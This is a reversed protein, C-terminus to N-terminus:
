EEINWARLYEYATSLGREGAKSMLQIAEDKRGLGKYTIAEWFIINTPIKGYFKNKIRDIVLKSETFKKSNCLLSLYDGYFDNYYVSISQYGVGENENVQFLSENKFHSNKSIKKDVISFTNLSGYKDGLKNLFLAKSYLVRNKHIEISRNLYENNNLYLINRQFDDLINLVKSIMQLLEFNTYLSEFKNNYESRFVVLRSLLLVDFKCSNNNFYEFQQEIENDIKEIPFSITIPEVFHVTASHHELLQYQVYGESEFFVYEVFRPEGDSVDFVTSDCVAFVKIFGNQSIINEKVYISTYNINLKYIINNEEIKPTSRLNLNKVNLYMKHGISPECFSNQAKCTFITLLFISAMM